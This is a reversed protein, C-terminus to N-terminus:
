SYIFGKSVADDLTELTELSDRDPTFMVIHRNILDGSRDLEDHTLIVDGKYSVTRRVETRTGIDIIKSM